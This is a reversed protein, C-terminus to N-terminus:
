GRKHKNIEYDKIRHENLLMKLVEEEMNDTSDIEIFSINNNTLFQKMQRSLLDSTNENHVRGQHTYTHKRNIYFNINDYENFVTFVLEKFCAPYTKPAYFVSNLLPADTVAMEVENSDQLIRLQRDQAAFIYNQYALLHESKSHIYEKVVEPSIEADVQSRKLLATILLATTSKGVGPSGFFNIVKM